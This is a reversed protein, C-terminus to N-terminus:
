KIRYKLMQQLQLRDAQMGCSALFTKNTLPFVKTYDNRTLICYDGNLRTDGALVVFDRGAIATTTGGNDSYPSWEHAKVGQKPLVLSSEPLKGVKQLTKGSGMASAGKVSHKTMVLEHGLTNESFQEIM